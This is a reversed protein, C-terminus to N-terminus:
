YYRARWAKFCLPAPNRVCGTGLRPPDLRAQGQWLTKGENEHPQGRPGGRLSNQQARAGPRSGLGWSEEGGGAASIPLPCARYRHRAWRWGTGRPAARGRGQGSGARAGKTGGSGRLARRGKDRKTVPAAPWDAGLRGAEGGASQGAPESGEALRRARRESLCLCCSQCRPEAGGAGRAHGKAGPWRPSAPPPPPDYWRM